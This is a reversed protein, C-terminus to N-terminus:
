TLFHSFLQSPRFEACRISWVLTRNGSQPGWTSMWGVALCGLLSGFVICLAADSYSLQMTLTGISGVVINNLSMGMSFWMLLMHLSNSAHPGLREDLPVPEIGRTELGRINRAWKQYKSEYDATEPDQYERGDQTVSQLSSSVCDKEVDSVM